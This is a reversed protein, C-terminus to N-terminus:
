EDLLQIEALRPNKRFIFINHYALQPVNLRRAWFRNWANIATKLFKSPVYIYMDSFMGSDRRVLRCSNFAFQAVLWRTSAHRWFLTEGEFRSTQEYGEPTKTITINKKLPPLESLDHASPRPKRLARWARHLRRGSRLDIVHRRMENMQWGNCIDGM